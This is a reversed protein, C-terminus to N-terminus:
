VQESGNAANVTEKEKEDDLFDNQVNSAQGEVVPEVQHFLKLDVFTSTCATTSTLCPVFRAGWEIDEPTYSHLAQFTGSMLPDIGEVVCILEQLPLKEKLEEL